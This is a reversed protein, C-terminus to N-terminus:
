PEQAVSQERRGDDHGPQAASEHQLRVLRLSGVLLAAAGIEPSYLVLAIGGALAALWASLPHKWILALLALGAAGMRLAGSGFAVVAMHRALCGLGHMGALCRHATAASEIYGVRLWLALALFVALSSWLLLFRLM